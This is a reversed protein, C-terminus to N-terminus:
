STFARHKCTHLCKKITSMSLLVGVGELTNKVQRSAPLLNKKKVLLLIRHDDIKSTKLPRERRECPNRLENAYKEEM